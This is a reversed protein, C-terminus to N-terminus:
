DAMNGEDLMVARGDPFDLQVALSGVAQLEVGDWHVVNCIEPRMRYARQLRLM